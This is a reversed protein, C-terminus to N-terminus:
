VKIIEAQGTLFVLIDGIEEHLHIQLATDVAAQLNSM